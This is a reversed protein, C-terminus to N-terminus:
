SPWEAPEKWVLGIGFKASIEETRHEGSAKFENWWRVVHRLSPDGGGTVDHFAMLGGLRLMPWYNVFDTSVEEYKHGGDIFIVDYPAHLRAMKVIDPHDSPGVYYHLRCYQQAAWAGWLTRAELVDERPHQNSVPIMDVSVITAGTFQDMWHWLTGGYLSGVELIRCPKLERARDILAALEGPDQLLKVPCSSLKTGAM